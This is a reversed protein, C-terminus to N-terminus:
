AEVVSIPMSSILDRRKAPRVIRWALEGAFLLVVAQGFTDQQSDDAQLQWRKEHHRCGRLLLGVYQHDKAVIDAPEVDASVM